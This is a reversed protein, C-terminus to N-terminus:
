YNEDDWKKKAEIESLLELPKLKILVFNHNKSTSVEFRECIAVISDSDGSNRRSNSNSNNHSELANEMGQINYKNNDIISISLSNEVHITYSLELYDVLHHLNALNFPSSSSSSTINTSAPNQVETRMSARTNKVEPRHVTIKLKYPLAELTHNFHLSILDSPTVHPLPSSSTTCENQQQDSVLVSDKMANVDVFYINPVHHKSKATNTNSNSDLFADFDRPPSPPQIFNEANYLNSVAVSELLDNTSQVSRIKNRAEVSYYLTTVSTNALQTYVRDALPAMIKQIYQAMYYETADITELEVWEEAQKRNFMLRAAANSLHTIIHLQSVPELQIQLNWRFVLMTAM